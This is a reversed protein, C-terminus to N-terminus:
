EPEGDGSSLAYLGVLYAWTRQDIDGTPRLAARAQLWKIAAVSAADHVGTTQVAPANAFFRQLAQMMSQILFLHTNRSGVTLTRKPTWRLAIPAAPLVSPSQAQYVSVIRKWTRIDTEGTVPLAHLAQFERVARATDEGYIGDPVLMPLRSDAHAITRLMTQLSRIPQGTYNTPTTM